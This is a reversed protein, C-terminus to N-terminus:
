GACGPPRACDWGAALRSGPCRGPRRHCRDAVVSKDSGAPRIRDRASVRGPAPRLEDQRRQHQGHQGRGDPPPPAFVRRQHGPPKPIQHHEHRHDPQHRHAFLRMRVPVGTQWVYPQIDHRGPPQRVPRGAPAVPPQHRATQGQQDQGSQHAAGAGLGRMPPVAFRQPGVRQSAGGVIIHGLVGQPDHQEVLSFRVRGHNM